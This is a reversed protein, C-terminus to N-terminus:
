SDYNIGRSALPTWCTDQMAGLTVGQAIIYRGKPTCEGARWRRTVDYGLADGQSMPLEFGLGDGHVGVPHLM